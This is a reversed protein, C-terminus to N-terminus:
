SSALFTSSYLAVPRDGMIEAERLIWKRMADKGRFGDDGTPRLGGHGGTPSSPDHITSLHVGGNQTAYVAVADLTEQADHDVSARWHQADLARYGAAIAYWSSASISDGCPFLARQAVHVSLGTLHVKPPLSAHINHNCGPQGALEADPVRYRSDLYSYPLVVVRLRQIYRSQPRWDSLHSVSPCLSDRRDRQCVICVDQFTSSNTMTGSSANPAMCHWLPTIATYFVNRSSLRDRAENYVQRCVLLLNPTLGTSQCWPERHSSRLRRLEIPVKSLLCEDYIKDRLHRPLALLLLMAPFHTTFISPSACPEYSPYGQGTM